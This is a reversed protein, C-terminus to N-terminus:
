RRHRSVKRSRPLKQRPAVRARAARFGARLSNRAAAEVQRHFSAAARRAKELLPSDLLFACRDAFPGFSNAAVRASPRHRLQRVKGKQSGAQLAFRPRAAVRAYLDLDRWFADLDEQEWEMRHALQEFFEVRFVHQHDVAPRAGRRALLVRAGLRRPLEAEIIAVAALLAERGISSVLDRFRPVHATLARRRYRAAYDRVFRAALGGGGLEFMLRAVVERAALTVEERSYSPTNGPVV